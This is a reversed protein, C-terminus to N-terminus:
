RKGGRKDRKAATELAKTTIQSVIDAYRGRVKPGARLPEQITLRSDRDELTLVTPVTLSLSRLHKVAVYFVEALHAKLWDLRLGDVLTMKWGAGLADRGVFVEEVAGCHFFFNAERQLLRHWVEPNESDAAAPMAPVAATPVAQLPSHTAHFDITDRGKRLNCTRCLVQLNFMAMEGGHYYALIHDIQLLKKRTEGCGLCHRDRRLIEARLGADVLRDGPGVEEHAVEVRAAMPAPSQLRNITDDVMRKFRDFSRFLSAWYRDKRAFEGQTAETLSRPGLDRQIYERALADVDHEARAEFAHFAPSAGRQARHRALDLVAQQLNGGPRGPADGFFRERLRQIEPEFALPDLDVAGFRAGVVPDALLADFRPREGDFVMVLRRVPEVDDAGRADGDREITSEYEVKYWGVPMLATFPGTSLSEGSDLAAAFQRVLDVSVLEVVRTVPVSSAATEEAGRPPDFRAWQITERWDDIFSVIIARETGGFKPGRLARGVMQTLLVTSTTQRTLFVTQTEPVDVGETLMRINVLVQIEGERFRRLAVDNADPARRARALRADAALDVQSYMAEAKVGRAELSKCIAECQFWRDAFIITRGYRAKLKAYHDAIFENRASNTALGEIVSEPLDRFPGRVWQHYEGERFRAEVTTQCEEVEPKALVGAAMLSQVEAQYLIGQPFLRALWGRRREATYTPTATLGLLMMKPHSQQLGEILKQYTPAPSHHAEDFVVFLGTKRSEKIFDAWHKQHAREANAVTQLTAIVFDDDARIERVECHGPTSSVVRAKLRKRPAEIHGIEHGRPSGAPAALGHFAQELLHHTHALWLVKYGSSLPAKCLFRLASFTKGGGTPLVLFGGRPADIRKGATAEEVGAKYWAHLRGLAEEQHAAPRQTSPSSRAQSLDFERFFKPAAPEM